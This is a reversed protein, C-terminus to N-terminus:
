ADKVFRVKIKAEVDFRGSMISKSSTMVAETRSYPVCAYSYQEDISAIEIGEGLLIEAKSKADELALTLAQNYYSAMDRCGFTIGSFRNAGLSTLEAVLTSINELDSTVFELNSSVQYGLFRPSASYDHKQFITYNQTKIDDESIGQETLYVVLEEVTQNNSAVAEELDQGQTEVGLCITAVDPAASVSASGFVWASKQLTQEIAADASDAALCNNTQSQMAFPVFAACLALSGALFKLGKM